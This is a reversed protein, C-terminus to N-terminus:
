SSGGSAAAVGSVAAPGVPALGHPAGVRRLIEWVYAAEDRAVMITYGPQAGADQRAIFARVGGLPAQVLDGQAMAAPTTNAPCLESLIAPAAPGALRLSTRSGTMEIASVDDTALDSALTRLASGGSPALLLVEDPGLLWIAGPEGLLDAAVARGVTTTAGGTAGGGAGGTAHTAAAALAGPGRLLLEDLPGIEALGAGLAVAAGTATAVAEGYGAPWHIDDALWRAGLEIHEAEIASRRTVLTASQSTM